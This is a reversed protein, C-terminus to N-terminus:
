KPIIYRVLANILLFCCLEKASVQTQKADAPEEKDEEDFLNKHANAARCDTAKAIIIAWDHDELCRVYEEQLQREIEM